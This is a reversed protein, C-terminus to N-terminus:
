RELAALLAGVRASEDPTLPEEGFRVRYYLRTIEEAPALTPEAGAARRALELPTEGDAPVLGRRALVRQLRAYFRAAAARRGGVVGGRRRLVLLAAAGLAGVGALWRWSGALLGVRRTLGALTDGAGARLRATERHLALAAQFQDRLNYDVVYRVWRSRLYDLYRAPLGAAGGLGAEFETRPSADLAIWGTGPIFAEVWAHADRQRVTFYRGFENWEGQQFGTVVRTPVGELRLMVALATAFYECHGVRQEFLFDEVPDYRPDRQLTLSYRNRRRLGAELRRAKQLPDVTEGALERTLARVRPAMPPLELFRTAMPPPLTAEGSVTEAGPQAYVTYLLRGAARQPLFASGAADALLVPVASALAVLRAPAFLVNTGALELEVEYRVMARRADPRQYPFLGEARRPVPRRWPSSSSWVSGDFRDLTLGRWRLGEPAPQGEAYDPLYARIAVTADTQIPGTGGLEVRDSFGTAMVGAKAQLPIFARGVRPLILFIAGTLLLAALSFFLGITLFGPTVVPAAELAAAGSPSYEEAEQRLHVLTFTWTGIVLFAVFIGLFAVNITVASAAVLMFFTLGGVHIVDRATQWTALKYLLLLLLLRVISDYFSDALFAADVVLFVLLAGGAATVVRPRVRARLRDAWWTAAIAAAAGLTAAPGLVGALSFAAFGDAVLLYTALKLALGFPLARV